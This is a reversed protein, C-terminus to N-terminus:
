ATPEPRLAPLWGDLLAVLAGLAEGVLREGDAADATTADGLVGSPSVDAVGGMRMRPMLDGVPDTVGRVARDGDVRGPAGALMVSTEVHGAHADGHWAPAWARVDRGEIRLRAVASRVADANGGHACVLLVRAWTCTASRCLEVLVRETAEAGISLTGPFSQHEGSAGYPLTPAVVVDDRLRALRGALLSAIDSDTTLPLHPGHQETAGLPVCLVRDSLAAADPSTTSSLSRM